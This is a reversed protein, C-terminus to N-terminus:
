PPVEASAQLNSESIVDYLLALEPEEEQFRRHYPSPVTPWDTRAPPELSPLSIGGGALRTADAMALALGRRDSKRMVYQTILPEAGGSAAEDRLGYFTNSMILCRVRSPHEFAMRAGYFGGISQCVLTVTQVGEADLVAVLDAAFHRPHCHRPDDNDLLSSGWGRFSLSIVFHSALLPHVNRWFSTCNGGAGHIFAVCPLTPDGRKIYHITAGANRVSPM